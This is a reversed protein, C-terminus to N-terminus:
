YCESKFTNNLLIISPIYHQCGKLKQKIEDALQKSFETGEEFNYQKEKLREALLTQLIEKVPGPRFRCMKLPAISKICPREVLCPRM